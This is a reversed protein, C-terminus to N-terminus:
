YGNELKDALLETMGWFYYPTGKHVRKGTAEVRLAPRLAWPWVAAATELHRDGLHLKWLPTFNNFYDDHERYDTRTALFQEAARDFSGEDPNSGTQVSAYFSAFASDLTPNLAKIEVNGIRLIRM